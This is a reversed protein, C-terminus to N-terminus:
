SKCQHAARYAKFEDIYQQTIEDSYSSQICKNFHKEDCGGYILKGNKCYVIHYAIPEAFSRYYSYHEDLLKEYTIKDFCFTSEPTYSHTILTALPNTNWRADEYSEQPEIKYVVLAVADSDSDDIHIDRFEQIYNKGNKIIWKVASQKSAFIQLLAGEAPSENHSIKRIYVGYVTIPEDTASMSATSKASKFLLNSSSKTSPPRKQTKIMKKCKRIKRNCSEGKPCAGPKCSM